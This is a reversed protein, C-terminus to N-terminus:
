KTNDKFDDAPQIPQLAGDLTYWKGASVQIQRQLKGYRLECSGNIVGSIQVKQLQHHQWFLRLEYGGRAKIGKVWGEALSDPLAPLLDIYGNQSQVLM